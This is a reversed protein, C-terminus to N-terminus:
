LRHYKEIVKDVVASHIYGVGGFKWVYGDSLCVYTKVFSLIPNNVPVNNM